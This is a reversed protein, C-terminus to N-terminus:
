RWIRRTVEAFRPHTRVADLLPTIRGWVVLADREVVAREVQHISQELLGASGAAVALWIPSMYEHRARAELEDYIARAWEAHGAKGYTWALTGLGWPHRGSMRLLAPAAEIAREYQGSWAYALMADWHALFSEEDLALAREAEVIAEALHGTFDLVCSHMAAVWANLPDDQVARAAEALADDASLHGLSFGWLARQARGRSHRPDANFAREWLPESAEGDWEYQMTVTALIAWAEANSPDIALAREALRKIESEVASYPRDGFIAMLRYSDALLAMAEAYQPDLAIAQELCAIAQPILRGRRIHLARARLLLEYADLNKTGHAARPRASDGHLTGRLRTAIANAIEDQVAFVDTMERDYRESWLQYGDAVKVLQATIRLRSGARRVTGELVNAVDLKEGVVRLDERKGKFAFCSMRAAVRLGDIHVLANLIEDAVGDAFYEDDAGSLNDFPIVAISQEHSASSKARGALVEALELRVDRIDRPRVEADKRLCRRLLERVRPPTDAPLAAWDPERELIHAILDPATAGTFALRGTLCEFLVCGFSWIDSRRDLAKGRAQEPSMYALTGVILGAVTGAFQATLTRSDSMDAGDMLASDSKALGFDLVKAVGRPTIMINGPKLDRHVIGREHAAEIGTAIQVSLELAERLPPAGRALRAALTEGEVLELVLYPERTAEELGYIAAINAHNLSALTQAERRFRALREPDNAFAEPLAKIAVDRGLRTDRARYVEGMGGAGLPAVIEFSGLRTGATLPM